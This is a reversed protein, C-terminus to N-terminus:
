KLVKRRVAPMMVARAIARACAYRGLWAGVTEGHCIYFRRFWAPADDLLWARFILWRIDADGFAARAVWCIGVGSLVPPPQATIKALVPGKVLSPKQYPRPNSRPRESEDATIAM